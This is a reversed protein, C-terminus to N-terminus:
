ITGHSLALYVSFSVIAPVVADRLSQKVSERREATSTSIYASATTAGLYSALGLGILLGESEKPHPNNMMHRCLNATLGTSFMASGITRMSYLSGRGIDACRDLRSPTPALPESLDEVQIGTSNNLPVAESSQYRIDSQGTKTPILTNM